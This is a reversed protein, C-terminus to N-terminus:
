AANETRQAIAAVLPCAMTEAYAPCAGLVTCAWNHCGDPPAVPTTSPPAPDGDKDLLQTIYEENALLFARDGPTVLRPDACRYTLRGSEVALVGPRARLSAMRQVIALPNM